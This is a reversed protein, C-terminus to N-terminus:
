RELVVRALPDNLTKGSVVAGRVDVRARDRAEIAAQAGIAQGMRLTILAQESARVAVPAKILCKTLTVSSSGDAVVAGELGEISADKITVTARATARVAIKGRYRGGVITLRCGDRADVAVGGPIDKSLGILEFSDGEECVVPASPDSSPRKVSRKVGFYLVLISPIAVILLGIAASRWM